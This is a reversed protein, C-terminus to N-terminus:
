RIWVINKKSYIIVIIFNEGKAINGVQRRYNHEPSDLVKNGLMENEM